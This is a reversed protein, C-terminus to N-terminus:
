GLLPAGRGTAQFHEPYIERAWAQVRELDEGLHSRLRDKEAARAAPDYAASTDKSYQKLAPGNVLDAIHREGLDLELFADAARLAAQPDALFTDFDLVRARERGIAVASRRLEAMQMHWVLATLQLDPM